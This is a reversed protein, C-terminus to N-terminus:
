KALKFVGGRLPPPGEFCKQHFQNLPWYLKLLVLHRSWESEEIPDAIPVYLFGKLGISDAQRVGRRVLYAYSSIYISLGALVAALFVISRSRQYLYSSWNITM